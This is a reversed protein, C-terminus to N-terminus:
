AKIVFNVSVYAPTLDIPTASGKSGSDGVYAPVDVTHTHAGDTATSTDGAGSGRRVVTSSNGDADNATTMQAHKHTGGSATVFSGHDHNISHVHPPLNAETLTIESVGASESGLPRAGTPGMPFRGAMNPLNFTTSGDGAGFRTGLIAFLSAYVARTIAQGNCLLWGEPAALGGWMMMEGTIREAAPLPEGGEGVVQTAASVVYPNNRAGTGSVTVNEGAVVVCSCQDSACGCRAM